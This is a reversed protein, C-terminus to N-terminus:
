ALCRLPRQMDLECSGAAPERGPDHKTKGWSPFIQPMCALCRVLLDRIRTRREELARLLAPLENGRDIWSPPIGSVIDELGESSIGEVNALFPEFDSWGAIQHYVAVHGYLGVKPDLTCDAGRFPTALLRADLDLFAVSYLLDSARKWFTARRPNAMNTWLDFLLIGAFANLNRVRSLLKEPLYDFIIGKGPEVLYRSGLQLGGV